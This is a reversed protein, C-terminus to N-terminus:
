KGKRECIFHKVENCKLPSIIILLAENYTLGGCKFGKFNYGLLDQSTIVSYFTENVQSGDIWEIGEDERVRAGVLYKISNSELFLSM